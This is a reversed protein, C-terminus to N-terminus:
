RDPFELALVPRVPDDRLVAFGAARFMAEPGNWLDGDDLDPGRKPFAEIRAAGRRRLDAVVERLLRGALGQRRHRPAILFCTIAWTAPDPPLDFQRALKALRDRELAQCWGVVEDDGYLLYGDAVGDDFLGERVRRNEAATRQSWGEWTPVWWAACRCWGAGCAESHLRYFDDRRSAELRVVASRM